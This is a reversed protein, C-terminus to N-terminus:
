RVEATVINGTRTAIVLQYSGRWIKTYGSVSKGATGNLVWEIPIGRTNARTAAHDTVYTTRGLSSSYFSMGERYSGCALPESLLQDSEAPASMNCWPVGGYPELGITATPVAVAFGFAAIIAAVKDPKSLSLM